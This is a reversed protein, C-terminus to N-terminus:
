RTSSCVTPWSAFNQPTLQARSLFLSLSLSTSHTVLSFCSLRNAAPPSLSPGRFGHGLRMLMPCVACEGEVSIPQGNFHWTVNPQPEGKVECLITANQGEKVTM